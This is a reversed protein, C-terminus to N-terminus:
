REKGKRGEISREKGMENRMRQNSEALHILKVRAVIEKAGVLPIVEGVATEAKTSRITDNM